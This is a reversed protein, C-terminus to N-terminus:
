FTFSQGSQRSFQKSNQWVEKM